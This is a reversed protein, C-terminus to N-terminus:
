YKRNRNNMVGAYFGNLISYIKNSKNKEMLIIKVIKGFIRSSLIIRKFLLDMHEPYDRWLLIHNRAIFFLRNPSYINNELNFYKSKTPEGYIQNMKAITVKFIKMGKNTAKFCFDYDVCDVSYDENFQGIAKLVTVPLIAGSTICTKVQVLSEELFQLENNIIPSYIANKPLRKVERYYDDFNVLTSDQDMILLYSFNNSTDMMMANAQNLAYAIGMNKDDGMLLVKEDFFDLNIQYNERDELPTNQWIILTDVNKIFKNINMILDSIDPYYTIVIGLLKM